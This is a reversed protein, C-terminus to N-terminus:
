KRIYKNCIAKADMRSMVTATRPIPVDQDYRWPPQCISKVYMTADRLTGWKANKSSAKWSRQLSQQTCESIDVENNLLVYRVHVNEKLVSVPLRTFLSHPIIMYDYEWHEYNKIINGIRILGGPTKKFHIRTDLMSDVMRSAYTPIGIMKVCHSGLRIEDPWEIDFDFGFESEPHHTVLPEDNMLKVTYYTLLERNGCLGCKRDSDREYSGQEIVDYYEAAHTAFMQFINAYAEKFNSDAVKIGAQQLQESVSLDCDTPNELIIRRPMYGRLRCLVLVTGLQEHLCM